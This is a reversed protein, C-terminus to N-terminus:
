PRVRCGIPVATAGTTKMFDDYLSARTETSASAYDTLVYRQM